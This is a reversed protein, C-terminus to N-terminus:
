KYVGSLFSDLNGSAIESAATTGEHLVQVVKEDSINKYKERFNSFYESVNKCLIEKFLQHGYKQYEISVTVPDAKLVLSLIDILNALNKRNIKDYTLGYITDTSARMIKKNLQEPEDILFICGDPDSKSM